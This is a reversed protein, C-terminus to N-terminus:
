TTVDRLAKKALRRSDALGEQGDDSLWGWDHTQKWVMGLYVGQGGDEFLLCLTGRETSAYDQYRAPLM